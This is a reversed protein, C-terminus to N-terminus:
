MKAITKPIRPQAACPCRRLQPGAGRCRCPLGGASCSPENALAGGAVAAQNRKGGYRGPPQQLQVSHPQQLQVSHRAARQAPPHRSPNVISQRLSSGKPLAIAYNQNDIDLVRLTSAPDATAGGV